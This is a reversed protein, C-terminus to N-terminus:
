FRRPGRDRGESRPRDSRPARPAIKGELEPRILDLKGRSDIGVIKVELTDGVKLFDEVNQVREEAIQSIHLL